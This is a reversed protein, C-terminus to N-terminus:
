YKGSYPLHWLLFFLFHIYSEAYRSSSYIYVSKKKNQTVTVCKVIKVINMSELVIMLINKSIKNCMKSNRKGLSIFIWPLQQNFYERWLSVCKCKTCSTLSIEPHSSEALLIICFLEIGSTSGLTPSCIDLLKYALSVWCSSRLPVLSGADCLWLSGNFNFGYDAPRNARHWRNSSVRSFRVSPSTVRRINDGLSLVMWLVSAYLWVPEKIAPM